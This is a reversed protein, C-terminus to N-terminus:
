CPTLPWIKLNNMKMKEADVLFRVLIFYIDLDFRDDSPAGLSPQSDSSDLGEDFQRPQDLNGGSQALQYGHDYLDEILTLKALYRWNHVLHFAVHEPEQMDREEIMIAGPYPWMKLQYTKLAANVRENYSAADEAGHCAGFCKKLQARFCPKQNSIATASELGLLKHCLFYHDALKEIQKSAQRPTRFLGFREDTGESENGGGSDVEVAEIAIRQYGNRDEDCRYQYLKKTKRLRRNYLPHLAKIQNSERIQAGLDSPTKEFDIHALKNNIQLDKPNSHDQSFHSMVRNRIHISKGVYLLAGNADYFYYVGASAPLKKIDSAKLLPPLAPNKLLSACTAAIEEDSFLASSKLFFRQIMEADDLARHRNEIPLQFRQIIQDLGHRKFQPYLSRSFKVSCLPKANYSIGIRQFENKLFGYDFRANHAVLTRDELYTLLKDAVESFLPAGRLMSPAIGTLKQIFPPLITEPDIFSQWRELVKGHEVVLLGIEIIRHHTAKGGTTELDLLVMKEPFGGSLTEPTPTEDDLWNLQM